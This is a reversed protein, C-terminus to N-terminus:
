TPRVSSRESPSGRSPDVLPLRVTIATGETADEVSVSGGSTRVIRNILWLGLGNADDLSPEEDVLVARDDAPLGPGDDAVRLEAVGDGADGDLTVSLRPRERDSHEIANEILNDVASPLVSVAAITVASEPVTADLRVEPHETRAQDLRRRVVAALDFERVDPDGDALSEALAAQETVETMGDTRASLVDLADTVAASDCDGLEERLLRLYGDIVSIDNRLDHRLVRNLVEVRREAARRETIDRFVLVTANTRELAGVSTTFTRRVSATAEGTDLSVGRETDGTSGSPETVDLSVTVETTGHRQCRGVAEVLEPQSRFVEEVPRGIAEGTEFLRDAAENAARVTGDGDVVVVPDSLHTVIHDQAVAISDLLRYRTIAVGTLVTTVAFMVPTFDIPPDGVPRVAISTIGALMPLLGAGFVALRRSRAGGTSRRYSRALRWLVYTNVVFSWVLFLGFGVGPTVSSRVAEGTVLSVDAYILGHAPNSIALLSFLLPVGSVIPLRRRTLWRDDGAVAFAFVPWSAGVIGTGIWLLDNYALITPLTSARLQLAYSWSWVTAGVALGLFGVIEPGGLTVPRRWLVLLLVGVSAAGGLVLLPVVYTLVTM